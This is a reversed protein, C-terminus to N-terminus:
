TSRLRSMGRRFWQSTLPISLRAERVEDRQTAAEVESREARFSLNMLAGFSFTRTM